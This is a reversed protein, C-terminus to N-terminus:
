SRNRQGTLTARITKFFRDPILPKTLVAAFKAQEFDAKNQDIDIATLAIVPEKINEERMKKTTEFGNLGPMMIDMLILDYNKKRLIELADLGSETTDCSFGNSELLRKTLVLNMQNDDVLLINGTAKERLEVRPADSAGVKDFWISFSFTTKQGKRSHVAIKSNHLRLFHKVIYLGIGSGGYKRRISESEHSFKDFIYSISKAKIGIGTDIVKFLVEARTETDTKLDVSLFIQGKSTFKNANNLLNILIQSLKVSDVLLPVPINEDVQHEFKNTSTKLFIQATKSVLRIFSKLNTKEVNLKSDKKEISKADVINKLLRYLYNSSFELLKLNQNFGSKGMEARLNHSILAIGNIPTFLEHTMVNLFQTKAKLAEELKAAMSELDANKKELAENFATIKKSNRKLYISIAISLILLFCIFAILIQGARIKSENLEAELTVRKLEAKKMELENEIRLVDNLKSLDLKRVSDISAFVAANMKAMENLQKTKAYFNSANKFFLYRYLVNRNEASLKRFTAKAKNLMERANEFDGLETYSELLFLDLFKKTGPKKHTLSIVKAALLAHKIAASWNKDRKYQVALNYNVDIQDKLTGHEEYLKLAMLLNKMSEDRPFPELVFLLEYTHAQEILDNCYPLLRKIKIIYPKSAKFNKNYHYFLAKAKYIRLFDIANKSKLAMTEAEKIKKLFTKPENIQDNAQHVISKIKASM